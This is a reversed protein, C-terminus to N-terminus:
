SNSNATPYTNGAALSENVSPLHVSLSISTGLPTFRISPEMTNNVNNGKKMPKIKNEISCCLVKAPYKNRIAPNDAIANLLRRADIILLRYLVVYVFRNGISHPVPIIKKPIARKTLIIQNPLYSPVPRAAKQLQKFDESFLL